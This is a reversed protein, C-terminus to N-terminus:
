AANKDAVAQLTYVFESMMGQLTWVLGAMPSQLSGVLQALLVEKPPIKSLTQIQEGDYLQGDVYGGKLALAKHVRMFEVLAKAVSIPDQHVFAVATPGELMGAFEAEGIEPTALKFLTNKVVKYEAGTERLSRRLATIEGVSLGRYDTLLFSSANKVDETLKQVTEVKKESPLRM